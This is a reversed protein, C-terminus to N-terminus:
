RLLFNDCDWTTEWNGLGRDDLKQKWWQPFEQTLYNLTPIAYTGDCVRMMAQSLGISNCLNVMEMAKIM